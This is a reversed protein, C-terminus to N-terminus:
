KHDGFARDTAEGIREGLAAVMNGSRASADVGLGQPFGHPKEARRNEVAIETGAIRDVPQAAQAIDEGTLDSAGARCEATPGRGVGFGATDFRSRPEQRCHGFQPTQEGGVDLRNEVAIRSGHAILLHDQTVRRERGQGVVAEGMRQQAQPNGHQRADDGFLRMGSRTDIDVRPGLDALIEADVVARADDDALRADDAAVHPQVLPHRKAGLAELEVGLPVRDVFRAM